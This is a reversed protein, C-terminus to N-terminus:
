VGQKKIVRNWMNRNGLYNLDKRNLQYVVKFVDPASQEEETLQSWVRPTFLLPTTGDSKHILENAENVIATKIGYKEQSFIQRLDAHIALSQEESQDCVTITIKGKDSCFREIDDRIKLSPSISVFTIRHFQEPWKSRIDNFHFYTSFLIGKLYFGRM